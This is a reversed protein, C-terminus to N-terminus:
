AGNQKFKFQVSLILGLFILLIGLFSIANYQEGFLFFGIVLAYVAELYKLIALYSTDDKQMFALTMFYQAGFGLLGTALLGLGEAPTPTKWDPAMAFASIITAFLMFHHVVVLPHDDDGIKRLLIYLLGNALASLLGISLVFLGIRNDFGKMLVIGSFAILFCAWQARSVRESLLMVAFIATFIPSLYKLVVASGFPMNQLTYFFSFMSVTGVVSRLYLMKQNKGRLSIGRSRLFLWSMAWSILSRFFAHEFSGIGSLGKVGAQMAAFFLSCILMARVGKTLFGDGSPNTKEIFSM